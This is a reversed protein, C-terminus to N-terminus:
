SSSMAKHQKDAWQSHEKGCNGAPVDKIPQAVNQQQHVNAGMHSIDDWMWLCYGPSVNAEHGDGDNQQPQPEHLVGTGKSEQTLDLVSM